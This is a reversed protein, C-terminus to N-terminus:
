RTSQHTPSASTTTSAGNVAATDVLRAQIEEVGYVERNLYELSLTRFRERVAELVAEDEHSRAYRENVPMSSTHATASFCVVLCAM